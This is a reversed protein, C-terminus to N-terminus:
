ILGKETALDTPLTLEYSFGYKQNMEVASKPLWVANARDGDTSVLWALDTEHHLHVDIDTLQKRSM